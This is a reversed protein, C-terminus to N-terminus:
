IKLIIDNSSIEPNENLFYVFSEMMAIIETDELAGKDWRNFKSKFYDLDKGQNKNIIFFTLALSAFILVIIYKKKM